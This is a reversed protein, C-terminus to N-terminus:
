LNAKDILDSLQELTQEIQWLVHRERRKADPGDVFSIQSGLLMVYTEFKVMFDTHRYSDIAACLTGATRYNLGDYTNVLHTFFEITGSSTTSSVPSMDDLSLPGSFRETLHLMVEREPISIEEDAQVVSMCADVAGCALLARISTRPIEADVEGVDAVLRRWGPSLEGLISRITSREVQTLRGCNQVIEDMLQFISSELQDIQQLDAPQLM